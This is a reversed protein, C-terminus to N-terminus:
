LMTDIAALEGPELSQSFIALDQRMHELSCPGTLPAVGRQTLYRFLVQEPTWQRRMAAMRLPPSSLLGPNATLTWFSQYWIGQQACWRRLERDYGTDVDFPNQVVAPKVRADRCLAQLEALNCNSIGLQRAGGQAVIAEMARWCAMTEPHTDLPGHLVLSDVYHTGLNRQSVAFSQRVREAIPANKDYPVNWPDHSQVDSYTTQLFIAERPIGRAAAARLAAGVGDERYHRPQCAVAIGRFGSLLAQEVLEATREKKWAAGYILLPMQVGAATRVTPVQAAQTPDSPVAIPAQPAMATPASGTTATTTTGAHQLGGVGFTHYGPQANGVPVVTSM